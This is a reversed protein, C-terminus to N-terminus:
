RPPPNFNKELCQWLAPTLRDYVAPQFHLADRYDAPGPKVGAAALLDVVRTDPENIQALLERNLGAVAEAVHPNWFLRRQWEPPGPPWVPLLLVKTQHRRAEQIMALLNAKTQEILVPELEPRLGLLKLDNIGAQLVLFDPKFEDLLAPLRLRLQATTTGGIAANVLRIGRPPAPNWVALRSDGFLMVTTAFHNTEGALRPTNPPGVPTIQALLREAYFARLQSLLIVNILLSVLLGGSVIWFIASIKKM